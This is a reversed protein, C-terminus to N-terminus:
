FRMVHKLISKHYVDIVVLSREPDDGHQRVHEAVLTDLLERRPTSLFGKEVLVEGLTKEKRLMWAQMTEILQAQSVFDLQFALIGFLLNRDHSAQIRHM